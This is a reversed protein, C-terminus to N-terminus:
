TSHCRGRSAVLEEAVALVRYKCDIAVSNVVAVVEEVAVEDEVEDESDAEDGSGDRKEESALRM